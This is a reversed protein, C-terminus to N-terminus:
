QPMILINHSGNSTVAATIREALSSDDTYPVIVRVNFRLLYYLMSGLQSSVYSAADEGDTPQSFDAALYDFASWMSDALSDNESASFAETPLSIGIHGTPCLRHVEDALTKLEAYYESPVKSVYLLVDDTGARLAEAALASYYGIAATRALDDDTNFDKLYIIGVSYLGNESCLKAASDLTRLGTSANQRGLSQSLPSSYLLTGDKSNLELCVASYGKKAAQALRSALTSGDASIPVPYAHVSDLEAHEATPTSSPNKRKEIGADVKKGLANGIIAFLLTLVAIASVTVIIVAKIRKKRYVSRRYRM